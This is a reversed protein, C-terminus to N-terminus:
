KGDGMIVLTDRGPVANRWGKFTYDDDVSKIKLSNNVIEDHRPHMRLIEDTTFGYREYAKLAKSLNKYVLGVPSGDPMVHLADYLIATDDSFKNLDDTGGPPLVSTEWWHIIEKKTM